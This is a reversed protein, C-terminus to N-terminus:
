LFHMQFAAQLIDSMKSQHWFTSSPEIFLLILSISIIAQRWCPKMGTSLDTNVLIESVMPAWLAVHGWTDQNARTWTIAQRRNPVLGKVWGISVKTMLFGHSYMM